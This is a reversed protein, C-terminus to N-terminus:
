IFCCITVFCRRQLPRVQVTRGNTFLTHPSPCQYCISSRLYFLQVHGNLVIVKRMKGGFKFSLAAQVEVFFRHSGVIGKCHYERDRLLLYVFKRTRILKFKELTTSFVIAIAARVIFRTTCAIRIAVALVFCLLTM